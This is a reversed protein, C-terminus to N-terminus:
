AAKLKQYYKNADDITLSFDQPFGQDVCEQIKQVDSAFISIGLERFVKLARYYTPKSVQRKVEKQGQTILLMYIAYFSRAAKDSHYQKLMRLVDLSKMAKTEKGVLFKNMIRTMEEKAKFNLVTDNFTMYGGFSKVLVKEKQLQEMIYRLRRKHEVEIRLILKADNHLKQAEVENVFRCKDHKKFEEGKAYVKLTNHRSAFYIGTDEYLNKMKRPYDFKQLYRIYARVQDESELIFNACTDIRYCYWDLVEDLTVGYASMFAERVKHAAFWADSLSCSELNHGWLVKPASFEFRIYPLSNVLQPTDSEIDHVYMRNDIKFLVKYNWSQTMHFNNYEFEIDGTEKDIRQTFISREVLFDYMQPDILVFFGLTDIM